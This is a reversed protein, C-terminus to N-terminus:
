PRLRSLAEQAQKKISEDAGAIELCAQYLEVAKAPREIKEHVQGTWYLSPAAFRSKPFHITVRMFVLGAQYYDNRDKALAFVCQGKQFLLEPLYRDEVAPILENIHDRASAYQQHKMEVQVVLIMPRYQTTVQGDRRAKEFIENAIRGAEKSDVEELITLRLTELEWYVNSNAAKALEEALLNLAKQRVEPTAGTINVPILASAKEPLANLLFLFAEVAQDLQGARESAQLYRAWCLNKWFGRARGLSQKYQTAAESYKKDFFHKEGRNFNDLGDTSDVILQQIDTIRAAQAEGAANNYIVFEGDFGRITARRFEGESSRIDDAQVSAVGWGGALVALSLARILPKIYIKKRFM